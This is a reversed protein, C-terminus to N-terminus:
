YFVNIGESKEWKAWMLHGLTMSLPTGFGMHDPAM